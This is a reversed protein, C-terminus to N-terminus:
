VPDFAPWEDFGDFLGGGLGSGGSGLRGPDTGSLVGEAGAEGRPEGFREAFM